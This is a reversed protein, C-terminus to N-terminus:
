PKWAGEKTAAAPHNRGDNFVDPTDAWHVGVAHRSAGGMLEYM